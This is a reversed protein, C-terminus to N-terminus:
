AAAGAGCPTTIGSEHPLISPANGDHNLLAFGERREVAHEWVEFARLRRHHGASDTGILEPHYSNAEVSWGAPVRVQVEALKEWRLSIASEMIVESDGIPAPRLAWLRGTLDPYYREAVNNLGHACFRTLYGYLTVTNCYTNM